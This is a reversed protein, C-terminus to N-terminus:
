LRIILNGVNDVEASFGPPIVTTTDM